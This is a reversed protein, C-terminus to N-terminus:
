RPWRGELGLDKALDERFIRWQTRVKIAKIQGERCMKEVESFRKEELLKRTLIMFEKADAAEISAVLGRTEIMGLAEQM